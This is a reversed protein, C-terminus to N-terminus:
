EVRQIAYWVVEGGGNEGVGAGDIRTLHRPPHVIASVADISFATKGGFFVARRTVAPRHM